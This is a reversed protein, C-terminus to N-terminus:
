AAEKLNDINSLIPRFITATVWPNAAWGFGRKANLSDWLRSFVQRESWAAQALASGLERLTPERTGEAVADEESIEQLRQVRVDTVILTLRSAWRPMHISPVPKGGTLDPDDSRYALLNWWDGYADSSRDDHEAVTRRAGDALYEIQFDYTDQDDVARVAERVWLRDGVQYPAYSPGYIPLSEAGCGAIGGGRNRIHFTGGKDEEVFKAIRRTQTKGTGPREIERLIARVMPASFLIPLDPM